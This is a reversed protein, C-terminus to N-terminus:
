CTAESHRGGQGDFEATKFMPCNTPEVLGRKILKRWPGIFSYVQVPESMGIYRFVNNENDSM